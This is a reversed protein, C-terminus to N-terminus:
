VTYQLNAGIYQLRGGSINNVARGIYGVCQLIDTGVNECQWFNGICLELLMAKKYKQVCNQTTHLAHSEQTLLLQSNCMCRFPKLPNCSMHMNRLNGYHVQCKRFNCELVIVPASAERERGQGWRLVLPHSRVGKFRQHPEFERKCLVDM